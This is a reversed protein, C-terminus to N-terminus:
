ALSAQATATSQDLPRDDLVPWADRGDGILRALDEALRGPQYRAEYRARAQVGLNRRLAQDQALRLLADALGQADGPSVVLGEIGDRVTDPIGGMCTTVVPLGVAMAELLVLPQGEPARPPFAFVDAEQFRRWKEEGYQAEMLEVRAGGQARLGDIAMQISRIVQPSGAGVLRVQWDSAVPGLLSLAKLLDFVGKERRLNALYLVRLSSSEDVPAEDSAVPGATVNEVHAVRAAPVLGDFMAELGPTLAWASDASRFVARILARIVPGSRGYFSDLEGGHLHLILRGRHMRVVLVLATDRLFGWRGQSIPLIVTFPATRPLLRHLAWTHRLGLRVNSTNFRGITELPQPDRTDLHGALVELQELAEMMSGTM